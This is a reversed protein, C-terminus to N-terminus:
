SLLCSGNGACMSVQGFATAHPGCINREGPVDPAPVGYGCRGDSDCGAIIRSQVLPVMSTPTVLDSSADSKGSGGCEGSHLGGAQVAIGSEDGTRHVSHSDGWGDFLGGSIFTFPVGAAIQEILGEFIMKWNGSPASGTRGRDLNEPVANWALHDSHSKPRTSPRSRPKGILAIVNGKTTRM